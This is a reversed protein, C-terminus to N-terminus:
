RNLLSSIFNKQKKKKLFLLNKKKQLFLLLFVKTDPARHRRLAGKKPPPSMSPFPTIMEATARVGIPPKWPASAESEAVWSPAQATPAATSRAPAACSNTSRM